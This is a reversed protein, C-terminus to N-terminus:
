KLAERLKIWCAKDIDMGYDNANIARAIDHLIIIKSQESLEDKHKILLESITHTVYTRRGLAYRFACVM